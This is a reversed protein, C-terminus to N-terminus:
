PHDLRAALCISGWPSPLWYRLSNATGSPAGLPEFLWCGGTSAPSTWHVCHVHCSTTCLVPENANIGVPSCVANFAAGRSRHHLDDKKRGVLRHRLQTLLSDLVTAWGVTQPSLFHGMDCWYLGSDAAPLLQGGRSLSSVGCPM